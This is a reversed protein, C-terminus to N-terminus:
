EYTLRSVLESKNRINNNKILQLIETQIVKEMENKSKEFEAKGGTIIDKWELLTKESLIMRAKSIYANTGRKKSIAEFAYVSDPEKKYREFRGHAIACRIYFLIAFFDVQKGNNYFVIRNMDRKNQFKGGLGVISAATSMDSLKRVKKYNVKDKLNAVYLLYLRLDSTKWIDKKWGYESMTKRKSSVYECPNEWLYFKVIEALSDDITIAKNKSAWGEYFSVILESM